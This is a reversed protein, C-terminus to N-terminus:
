HGVSILCSSYTHASVGDTNHVVLQVPALPLMIPVNIPATPAIFHAVNFAVAGLNDLSQVTCDLKGTAADPSFSLWAEGPIVYEALSTDTAGAALSKSTFGTQVPVAPDMLTPPIANSPTVMHAVTMAAGGLVDIAVTIFSSIAPMCLNITAATIAPINYQDILITKTSDSWWQIQLEGTGVTVDVFVNVSGYNSLNVDGITFLGANRVTHAAVLPTGKFSSYGQFDPYGGSPTTM